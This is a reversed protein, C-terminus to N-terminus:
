WRYAGGNIREIKRILEPSLAQGQLMNRLPSGASASTKALASKIKGFASKFLSM